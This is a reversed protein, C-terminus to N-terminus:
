KEVRLDGVVLSATVKGFVNAVHDAIQYKWGDGDLTLGPGTVHVPTDSEVIKNSHVYHAKETTMVYNHPLTVRIDGSLEIDKTGAYLVGERSELHIEENSQDQYFTLRVALLLTKQQDQFYKAESAWLTWFKRGEQMETFEMDKLKMEADSPPAQQAVQQVPRSKGKWIGAALVLSLAVIVMIVFFQALKGKLGM